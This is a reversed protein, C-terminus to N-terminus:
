PLCLTDVTETFELMAQEYTEEDADFLGPISGHFYRKNAPSQKVSGM